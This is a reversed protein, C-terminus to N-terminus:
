DKLLGKSKKGMVMLEDPQIELFLQTYQDEKLPHLYFANEFHTKVHFRRIKGHLGTQFYYKQTAPHSQSILMGDDGRSFTKTYKKIPFHM